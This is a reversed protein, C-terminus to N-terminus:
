TRLHIGQVDSIERPHTKSDARAVRRCRFLDISASELRARTRTCYVVSSSMLLTAKITLTLNFCSSMVKASCLTLPFLLPDTEDDEGKRREESRYRHQGRMRQRGM